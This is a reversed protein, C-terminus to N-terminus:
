SECVLFCGITSEYECFLCVRLECATDNLGSFAVVSTTCAFM